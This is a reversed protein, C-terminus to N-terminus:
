ISTCSPCPADSDASEPFMFNYLFLTRKRPAFLESLRVSSLAGDGPASADFVYDTRVEGGLPLRRRQEAVAEIQRRLKIEAQLLRNRARRYEASEGPFRKTLKTAAVPLGGSKCRGDGAM